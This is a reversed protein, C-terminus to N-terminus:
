GAVARALMSPGHFKVIVAVPVRAPDMQRVEDVDVIVIPQDDGRPLPRSHFVQTRGRGVGILKFREGAGDAFPM